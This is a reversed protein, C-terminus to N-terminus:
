RLIRSPVSTAAAPNHSSHSAIGGANRAAHIAATPPNKHHFARVSVSTHAQDVSTRPRSLKAQGSMRILWSLDADADGVSSSIPVTREATTNPSKEDTNQSDNEYPRKLRAHLAAAPEDPVPGLSCCFLVRM